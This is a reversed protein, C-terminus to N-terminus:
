VFIFSGLFDVKSLGSLLMGIMVPSVRGVDVLSILWDKSDSVPNAPRRWWEWCYFRVGDIVIFM